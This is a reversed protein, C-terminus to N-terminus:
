RMRQNRKHVLLELVEHEDQEKTLHDM